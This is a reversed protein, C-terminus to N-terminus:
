ASAVVALTLKPTNAKKPTLIRGTVTVLFANESYNSFTANISAGISVRPAKITFGQEAAIQLSQEIVPMKNPANWVPTDTAEGSITGGFIRQLLEVSPNAIQTTFNIAGGSVRSFIPDDNEEVSFDTRTPDDTTIQCTDRWTDGLEVLTTSMGGDAAINGILVKALGVTFIKKNAM